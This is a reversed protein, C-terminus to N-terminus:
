TADIDICNLGSIERLHHFHHQDPLISITAFELFPPSDKVQRKKQDISYTKMNYNRVNFKKRINGSYKMLTVAGNVIDSHM